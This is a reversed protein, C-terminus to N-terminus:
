IHILSLDIPLAYKEAVERTLQVAKEMSMLCMKRPEMGLVMNEAVTMSPVLMFHQHVMGIGM